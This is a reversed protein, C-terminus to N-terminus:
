DDRDEQRIRVTQHPIIERYKRRLSVKEVRFLFFENQKRGIQHARAEFSWILRLLHALISPSLPERFPLPNASQGSVIDAGLQSQELHFAHFARVDSTGAFRVCPALITRIFALGVRTVLARGIAMATVVIAAGRVRRMAVASLERSDSRVRDM